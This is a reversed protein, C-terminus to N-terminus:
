TGALDPAKEASAPAPDPHAPPEAATERAQATRFAENAAALRAERQARRALARERRRALLGSAGAQLRNWSFVAQGAIRGATGGTWVLEFPSFLRWRDDTRGVGGAILRGAMMSAAFGQRGFGSAIWLGPRMPGFQPMGHVTEGTAGSWVDAIAVQKLQPFTARIRRRIGAAVRKPNMPFTSAYVSWLLRDGGVVAYRDIGASDGVVGPYAMAEALAEGLPETVAAYRWVPLLTRSLRPFDPGLHVNGALVITYARLKGSPTKIRKRIGAADLGTVRTNEFVRVGAQEVLRILHDVYGAANLHFANRYQVAHFYRGTKLVERVQETQWGEVDAGLTEGLLQLRRLLRDGNDTTSVELRGEGTILGQAADRATRRVEAVGEETLAWLGRAHDPGVRAAIQEIDVGFGPAVLGFSAGSANWALREAEILAVSYGAQAMVLAASLGAVGGGVVCVDVDLDFSLPPRADDAAAQRRWVQGNSTDADLSDM